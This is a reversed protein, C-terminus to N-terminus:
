PGQKSIEDLLRLAFRTAISEVEKPSMTKDRHPCVDCNFVDPGRADECREQGHPETCGLRSMM